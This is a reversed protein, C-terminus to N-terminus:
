EKFTNRVDERGKNLIKEFQALDPVTKGMAKLQAELDAVPPSPLKHDPHTAVVANADLLLIGEGVAAMTLLNTYRIVSAPNEGDAMKKEVMGEIDVVAIRQQPNQQAFMVLETEILHMTLFYNGIFTMGVFLLSLTLYHKTTKM